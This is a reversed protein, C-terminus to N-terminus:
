TEDLKAQIADHVLRRVREVEAEDDPPGSPLVPQFAHMTVRAPRPLPTGFRGLAIPFNYREDGFLLKGLGPERAVVRYMDDVGCAAVPVIPVSARLAVRAFGARGHWKLRHRDRWLKYSDFIGGPYVVVLNGARLREVAEERTGPIAGVWDLTAALGPTKWLQGDALWVAHRRTHQWLLAGLVFADFGFLGHNLVVLAGGERPVHEHGVMRADFYRIVRDIVTRGVASEPFRLFSPSFQM